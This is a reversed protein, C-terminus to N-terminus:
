VAQWNKRTLSYLGSTPWPHRTRWGLRSDVGGRGWIKRTRAGATRTLDAATYARKPGNRRTDPGECKAISGGAGGGGAWRAAVAAEEGGLMVGGGCTHEIPPLCGLRALHQVKRRGRDRDRVAAACATLARKWLLASHPAGGGALGLM